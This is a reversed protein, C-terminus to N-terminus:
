DEKKQFLVRIELEKRDKHNTEFLISGAEEPKVKANFSFILQYQYLGLSDKGLPRLITKVSFNNGKNTRSKFSASTIKLDDKTTTLMVTDTVNEPFTTLRYLAYRQSLNIPGLIYGQMHLTLIPDTESNSVITIPKNQKGSKGITSLTARIYASDGAQISDPFNVVTCSCGPKVKKIVLPSTGINKIKFNTTITTDGEPITGFTFDPSPVEIQPKAILFVPLLISLIRKM